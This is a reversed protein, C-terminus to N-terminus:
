WVDPLHGSQEIARGLVEKKRAQGDTMRAAPPVENLPQGDCWCVGDKYGRWPCLKDMIWFGWSREKIGTKVITWVPKTGQLVVRHKWTAPRRLLSFPPYWVQRRPDSTGPVYTQISHSKQEDNLNPDNFVFPTEEWYGRTLILSTFPWPHDHMHPDEDGRYFKHLYWRGKGKNKGFDKDRPYIFWRRLYIDPSDDRKIDTYPFLDCLSQEIGTVFFVQILIMAAYILLATLLFHM